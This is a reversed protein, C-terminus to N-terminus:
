CLELPDCCRQADVDRLEEQANALLTGLRTCPNALRASQRYLCPVLVFRTELFDGPRLKIAYVRM